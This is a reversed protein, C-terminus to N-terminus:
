GYNRQFCLVARYIIFMCDFLIFNYYFVNKHKNYFSVSTGRDVCQFLSSAAPFIIKGSESHIEYSNIGWTTLRKREWLLQEERSFKNSSALSPFNSEIVSHWIYRIASTAQNENPVDAYLLTTEWGNQPTSLFYIRTRGDQLTRFSISTPVMTSLSCLQRRLDSVVCKLESWSLKCDASTEGDM